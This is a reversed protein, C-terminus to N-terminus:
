LRTLCTLLADETPQAASVARALALSQLPALCAPSLGIATLRGIQAPDLGGLLRAIMRAAKPSQLLVADPLDGGLTEPLTERGVTEYVAVARATLGARQLNGVLDGAPEVACPHLVAADAVDRRKAICRTLAAVDGSASHVAGFGFTRAVAATADGVAFVPLDRRPSAAAFARVGNGSTFALVDVGDLDIVPSLVRVELVPATVPHHGLARVRRATEDAGPQARTVWVRLTM